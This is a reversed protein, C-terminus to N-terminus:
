YSLIIRRRIIGVGYNARFHRFPLMTSSASGTASSALARHRLPRFKLPTHMCFNLAGCSDRTLLTNAPTASYASACTEPRAVETYLQYYRCYGNNYIRILGFLLNKISLLSRRPQRVTYFDSAFNLIQLLPPIPLRAPKLYRNNVCHPNLDWRRCWWVALKEARQKPKESRWIGAKWIAKM